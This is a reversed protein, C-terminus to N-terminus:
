QLARLTEFRYGQESLAKLVDGLIAANTASTPHLLMIEGNHANELIKQKAKEPDPQNRDDWDAYAFSWFVTTYGLEKAYELSKQSYRGEPPRFFPAITCGTVALCAEEVGRLEERFTEKDMVSMDRHHVSHNCLLHGSEVMLRCLEPNRNLFHPLVFFSAKAGYQNLVRVIKEVNGNEYGADFTLYMVKEKNGDGHRADLFIAGDTQMATFAPDAKPQKHEQNRKVYWNHSEGAGLTPLVACFVLAASLSLVALRNFAKIKM